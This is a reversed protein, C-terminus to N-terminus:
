VYFKYFSVNLYFSIQDGWFRSGHKFKSVAGMIDEQSFTNINCLSGHDKYLEAYHAHLHLVFNQKHVYYIEHDRYFTSLLIHAQDATQNGLM